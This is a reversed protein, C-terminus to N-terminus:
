KTWRQMRQQQLTPRKLPRHIPRTLHALEIQALRGTRHRDPAALGTLSIHHNRRQSVRTGARSRQNLRWALSTTQPIARHKHDSPASGSNNTHSRSPHRCAPPPAASRSSHRTRHAARHPQNNQSGASGCASRTTSRSCPYISVIKSGPRRNAFWRSKWSRSSAHNPSALRRVWLVSRQPGTSRSASSRATIAPSRRRGARDLLARSEM